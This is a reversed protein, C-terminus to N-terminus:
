RFLSATLGYYPPYSILSSLFPSPVALHNIFVQPERHQRHLPLLQSSICSTSEGRKREQNFKRPWLVTTQGKFTETSTWQSGTERYSFMWLWPGQHKSAWGKQGEAPIIRPVSADESIIAVDEGGQHVRDQTSALEVSSPPGVAEKDGGKRGGWKKKVLDTM